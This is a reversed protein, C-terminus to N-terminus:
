GQETAGHFRHKINVRADKLASIAGQIEAVQRRSALEPLASSLQAESYLDAAIRALTIQARDIPYRISKWYAGARLNTDADAIAREVLDQYSPSVGRGSDDTDHEM